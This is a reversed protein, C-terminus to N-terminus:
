VGLEKETNIYGCHPCTCRRIQRRIYSKETIRMPGNNEFYKFRRKCRACNVDKKSITYRVENEPELKVGGAVEETLGEEEM